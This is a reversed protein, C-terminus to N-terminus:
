KMNDLRAFQVLAIILGGFAATGLHFRCVIAYARFVIGSTITTSREPPSTFYRVHCSVFLIVHFLPLYTSMIYCLMIHCSVIHWSTVHHQYTTYTFNLHRVHVHMNSKSRTISTYDHILIHMNVALIFRIFFLIIKFFHFSFHVFFGFICFTFYLFFYRPLFFTWFIFFILIMFISIYISALVWWKSVCVAIM